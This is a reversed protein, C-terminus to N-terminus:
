QNDGTYRWESQGPAPSQVNKDEDLGPKVIRRWWAGRYREGAEVKTLAADVDYGLPYDPHVAGVIERMTSPGETQLYGRAADIAEICQERDKGAPFDVDDFPQTDVSVDETGARPTPPTDTPSQDPITAEGPERPTEQVDQVPWWVTNRGGIQKSDIEGADELGRLRNLTGRRQISVSEAVEATSLVPDTTSRFVDLIDEDAVRPKRGGKNSSDPM